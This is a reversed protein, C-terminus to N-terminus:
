LVVQRFLWEKSQGTEIQNSVSFGVNFLVGWRYLLLLLIIIIILAGGYDLTTHQVM